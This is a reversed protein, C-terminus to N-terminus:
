LLKKCVNQANRKWGTKEVFAERWGLVETLVLLLGGTCATISRRNPLIVFLSDAAVFVLPSISAHSM